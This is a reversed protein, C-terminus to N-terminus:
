KGRVPRITRGLWRLYNGIFVPEEGSNDFCLTYADSNFGYTSTWYYGTKLSSVTKSGDCYGGAPLFISNGNPGTVTYGYRTGNRGWEWRCKDVLEQMEARTPMRWKGGLAATAADHISSAIDSGINIFNSHGYPTLSSYVYTSDAYISKSDTEGWSYYQGYANPSNAGLNCKAWAVSLGLDVCGTDPTFDIYDIDGVSYCTEAGGNMDLTITQAETTIAAAFALM